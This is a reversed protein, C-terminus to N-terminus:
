EKTKKKFLGALKSKSKGLGKDVVKEEKTANDLNTSEIDVTIDIPIISEDMSVPPTYSDGSKRTSGSFMVPQIKKLEKLFEGMLQRIEEANAKAIAQALSDTDIPVSPGLFEIKKTKRMTWAAIGSILLTLCGIVVLEWTM